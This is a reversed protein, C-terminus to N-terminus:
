GVSISKALQVMRKSEESIDIEEMDADSIDLAWLFVNYDKEKEPNDLADYSVLLHHKLKTNDRSGKDLSGSWRWGDMAKEAMWRMHECRSLHILMEMAKNPERSHWANKKIQHHM